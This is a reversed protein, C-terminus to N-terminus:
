ILAWNTLWNTLSLFDIKCISARMYDKSIYRLDELQLAKLKLTKSNGECYVMEKSGTNMQKM